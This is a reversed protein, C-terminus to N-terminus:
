IISKFIEDNSYIFYGGTMAFWAHISSVGKYFRSNPTYQSPSKEDTGIFMFNRNLGHLVPSWRQSFMLLPVLNRSTCIVWFFGLTLISLSKLHYHFPPLLLSNTRWTKEPHPLINIHQTFHFYSKPLGATPTSSLGQLIWECWINCSHYRRSNSLHLTGASFFSLFKLCRNHPILFIM